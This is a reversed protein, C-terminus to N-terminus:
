KSRKRLGFDLETLQRVLRLSEDEEDDTVAMTLMNSRAQISPTSRYIEHGFDESGICQEKHGTGEITPQPKDPGSSYSPVSSSPPRDHRAVRNVFTTNPSRERPRAKSRFTQSKEAGIVVGDNETSEPNPSSPELETLPSPPLSTSTNVSKTSNTHVHLSPSRSRSESSTENHSQPFDRRAMSDAVLILPQPSPPSGPMVGTADDYMKSIVTSGPTKGPNYSDSTQEMSMSEPLSSKESFPFAPDPLRGYLRTSCSKMQEVASGQFVSTERDSVTPIYSLPAHSPDYLQSSSLTGCSIGSGHVRVEATALVSFHHRSQDRTEPSGTYRGEIEDPEWKHRKV